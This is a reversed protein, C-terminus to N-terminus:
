RPLYILLTVIIIILVIILKTKNNLIFSKIEQGFYKVLVLGIIIVLTAIALIWFYIDIEERIIVTFMLLLAGLILHLFGKEIKEKTEKKMLGWGYSIIEVRNKNIM